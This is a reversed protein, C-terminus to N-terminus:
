GSAQLNQYKLGEATTLLLQTKSAGARILLLSEWFSLRTLKVFFQINARQAYKLNTKFSCIWDPMDNSRSHGFSLLPM